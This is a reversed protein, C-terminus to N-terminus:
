IDDYAMDLSLLTRSEDCYANRADCALMWLDMYAKDTYRDTVTLLLLEVRRIRLAHVAYKFQQRLRDSETLLLKRTTSPMPMPM